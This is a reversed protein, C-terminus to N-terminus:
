CLTSRHLVGASRGDRDLICIEIGVCIIHISIRSYYIYVHQQKKKEAIRTIYELNFKNWRSEDIAFPLLLQM